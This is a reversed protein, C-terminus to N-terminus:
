RIEFDIKRNIAQQCIPCFQNLSKSFMRCDTASRYMGESAYGAGEYVGIVNEIEPDHIIGEALEAVRKREAGHKQYYLRRLSDYEVKAWTTPIDTGEPLQNKWKADFNVLNTINPEWPEVDVPYFDNYAVSSSYYEDALGAFSHGFEHVFVYDKWWGPDSGDAGTYCTAQCHYIGGGGYRPSNFLIYIHDYPASAAVDRIAKNNTSLVYRALDFTNFGADVITRKWVNKRPEDVGSDESISEVAWVNFDNQRTKFPEEDFLVKTYHKVDRRFKALDRKAYGDAIILIDVKHEPKGNNM